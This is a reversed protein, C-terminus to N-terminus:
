YNQYSPLTIATWMAVICAVPIFAIYIWGLIKEWSCTYRAPGFDNLRECGRASLLYAIFFLNVVPILYLISLWGNQNRDHLRRIIFVFNTYLFILYLSGVAFFVFFSFQNSLTVERQSMQLIGFGLSICAILFFLTSLLSWAAYSLRSFRGKPNLPSDNALRTGQASSRM